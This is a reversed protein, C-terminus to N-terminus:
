RAGDCEDEGAGELFLVTNPTSTPLPPIQTQGVESTCRTPGQQRLPIQGGQGNRRRDGGGTENQASGEPRWWTTRLKFQAPPCVQSQMWRGKPVPGEREAVTGGDETVPSTHESNLVPGPVCRWRPSSESKRRGAFWGEQGKRFMGLSGLRVGKSFGVGQGPSRLSPGGGWVGAQPKRGVAEM